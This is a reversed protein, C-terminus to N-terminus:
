QREDAAGTKENWRQVNVGMVLLWLTLSIQGVGPFVLIYPQLSQVVSPSLFLVYSLGALMMLVGIIRPLFTSRFILYGILLCYLGFFVLGINHYCQARLRLFVLALAQLQEVNFARLYPTGGLLALPALHFLSSVAQVACAVVGFLAAVLSVSRNVPRFLEYFLATLAAYSAFAIIDAAFGWRWLPVHALINTATAAADDSAILRNRVFIEVFMRTLTTLLYFAGAIRAKFSPSAETIRVMLEATSVM